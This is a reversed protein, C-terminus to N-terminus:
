FIYSAIRFCMSAFGRWGKDQESLGPQVSCLDHQLQLLRVIMNQGCGCPVKVMGCGYCNHLKALGCFCHPGGFAVCFCKTHGLCLVQWLWPNTYREVNKEVPSESCVSPLGWLLSTETVTAKHTGLCCVGSIAFCFWNICLYQGATFALIFACFVFKCKETFDIFNLEKTHNLYKTVLLHVQGPLAALVSNDQRQHSTGKTNVFDPNTPLQVGNGSNRNQWYALVVTWPHTFLWLLM